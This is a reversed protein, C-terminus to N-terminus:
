KKPLDLGIDLTTTQGAKIEVEKTVEGLVEHWFSVKYKGEPIDAIKYRGDEGSVFAYNPNRVVIIYGSMWSHVDCSLRIVEEKKPRFEQSSHAPVNLNTVGDKTTIKINHLVDDSNKLDVKSNRAVILVHPTYVCQKQDVEYTTKPDHRRGKVGIDLVVAVNKITFKKADKAAENKKIIFTQLTQEVGCVKADNHDKSSVVDPKPVDKEDKVNLYVIGELAGTKGKEDEAFASLAAASSPMNKKEAAPALGVVFLAALVCVAVGSKM